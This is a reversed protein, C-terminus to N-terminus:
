KPIGRVSPHTPPFAVALPALPFHVNAASCHIARSTGTQTASLSSPPSANVAPFSPLFTNSFVCWRPLCYCKCSLTFAFRCVTQVGATHRAKNAGIATAPVSGQGGRTNGQGAPAPSTPVSPVGALVEEARGSAQQIPVSCTDRRLSSPTVVGSSASGRGVGDMITTSANQVPTALVYSSSSVVALGKRSTDLAFVFGPLPDGSFLRARKRGPAPNADNM